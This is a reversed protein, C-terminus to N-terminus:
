SDAKILSYVNEFLMLLKKEFDDTPHFSSYFLLGSYSNYFMDSVLLLNMNDKIEGNKEAILLVNKILEKEGAELSLYKEYFSPHYRQSNLIFLSFARAIEDVPLQLFDQIRHFRKHLFSAYSLLFDHLAFKDSGSTKIMIDDEVKILDLFFTDVVLRFLEIKNPAYHYLAGKSINTAKIMDDYSVDEYHRTLFLKFITELIEKRNQKM